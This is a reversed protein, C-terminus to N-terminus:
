YIKLVEKTEFFGTGEYECNGKNEKRQSARSVRLTKVSSQALKSNYETLDRCNETWSNVCVYVFQM